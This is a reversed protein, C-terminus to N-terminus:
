SDGKHEERVNLRRVRADSHVHERRLQPV